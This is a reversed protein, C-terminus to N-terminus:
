KKAELKVSDLTKILRLTLAEINDYPCRIYRISKNYKESNLSIKKEPLDTVQLGFENPIENWDVAEIKQQILELQDENLQATYEGKHDVHDKGHYVMNGNSYIAMEEVPCTGFCVGRSFYILLDPHSLDIIDIIDGEDTKNESASAKEKSAKCGIIASIIFPIFILYTFLKKMM